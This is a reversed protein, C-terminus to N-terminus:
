LQTQLVSKVGSTVQEVVKSMLELNETLQYMQMQVKMLEGPNSSQGISSVLKGASQYQQDISALRQRFPEFRATRPLSNVRKALQSIHQTADKMRVGFFQRASSAGKVELHNTLEVKLLRQQESSVQKVEPPLDIQPDQPLLRSRVQDFKSDGTKFPNKERQQTLSDLGGSPLKSLIPDIMMNLQRTLPLFTARRFANM